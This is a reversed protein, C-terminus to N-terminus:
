HGFTATLYGGVVNREYDFVDANSRNREYRWRASATLWATLPRELVVDVQGTTEDRDDDSLGYQTDFFLPPDPFTTPHRYPRWAFSGSVDLAFGVPLGARLGAALSHAQYSYESGRAALRDFQYGGRLEIAGWPWAVPLAAAHVVGIAFGNGDRNRADAEDLGPPGCFGLPSGGCAAGTAGPGDPVDDSTRYFDDRWFRTFLESSGIGGWQRIASVSARYTWLFREYDVWAYGTDLALRLTTRDDLRRDLWTAVGPFQTDFADIERYASGTWSVSAGAAWRETRLLEMGASAQWVGRVDRESSIESPLPTGQGLLVANDDYEVGARLSGWFRRAPAGLDDLLREAQRAWPTDPWERVVRALAVRARAADAAHSWGVGAYYSAVPEVQAADLVRAHELWAAADGAAEADARVLLLLGRYLAIEAREEAIHADARELEASAEDYREQHYLAIALELRADGDDPALALARRLSEDAAAHRGADNECRASWVLPEPDRPRDRVLEALLM